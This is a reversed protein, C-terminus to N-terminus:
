DLTNVGPNLSVDSGNWRFAGALGEPLVVTGTARGGGFSLDLKM